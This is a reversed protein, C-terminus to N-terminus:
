ELWHQEVSGVEVGPRSWIFDEVGRMIREAGSATSAVAAFGLVARQWSDQAGIEAASVAFRRRSAEVIPTVVQRKDKLSHADPIRLEVELALVYM